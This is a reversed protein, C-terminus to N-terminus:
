QRAETPLLGEADLSAALLEAFALEGKDSFHTSDGYLSLDTGINAADVVPVSHERGVERIMDDFAEALSLFDAASYCPRSLLAARARRDIEETPMTSDFSRASTVLLLRIGADKAVRIGKNMDARTKDLVTLDIASRSAAGASRRLSTTNKTVLDPLLLWSPLEPIPLGKRLPLEETSSGRCALDYTGPYWVLTEIGFGQLRQALLDVQNEITLGAVGANIVSVTPYEERLLAQLQASSTHSDDSAYTGMVVSSGLIALRHENEAPQPPFDPGRLGYHNTSMTRKRGLVVNDPRLLRIGLKSDWVFTSAGSLHSVISQGTRLHSRLQLGAELLILLCVAMMIALGVTRGPAVSVERATWKSSM